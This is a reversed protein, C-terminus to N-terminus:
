LARFGEKASLPFKGGSFTTVGIQGMEQSDKGDRTFTKSGSATAFRTALTTPLAESRQALGYARAFIPQGRHHVLVVGSFPAAAQQQVVADIASEDNM